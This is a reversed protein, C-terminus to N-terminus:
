YNKLKEHNIVAIPFRMGFRKDHCCWPTDYIYYITDNRGWTRWNWIHTKCFQCYIVGSCCYFKKHYEENVKNIFAKWELYDKTELIEDILYKNMNLIILSEILLKSVVNSM